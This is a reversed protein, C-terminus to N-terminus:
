HVNAWIRKKVAITLGLLVILFLVVKIGMSKRQELNPEAAWALFTTVDRAMQEVTPKTGDTYEIADESLPPAMAIQNGAFYKNYNMNEGVKVDTPPDAYGTLIGYVYDAGGFQHGKPYLLYDMGYARADVILSLDPPLAGNNGARAANENPFPNVFKDAPRAPRDFMEGDDNPGDTVEFEAAFAKVQDETYGLQMLNRYAVHRLGHCGACVEKYVQLGRQAEGRDFSGFIGDWSWKQRPVDVGGAAISESVATMMLAGALASLILNKHMM